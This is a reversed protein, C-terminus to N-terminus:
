MRRLRDPAEPWYGGVVHENLAECSGLGLWHRGPYMAALTAAAQAVLAPHM